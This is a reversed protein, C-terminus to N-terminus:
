VRRGRCEVMDVGPLGQLHNDGGGGGWAEARRDTQWCGWEQGKMEHWLLWTRRPLRATGGDGRRPQGAGCSRGPKSGVPPFGPDGPATAEQQLGQM